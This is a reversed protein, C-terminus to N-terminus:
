AKPTSAEKTSNPAAVSASKAEPLPTSVGAEAAARATGNLASDTDNAAKGEVAATENLSKACAVGEAGTRATGNLSTPVEGKVSASDSSSAAASVNATSATSGADAKSTDSDASETVSSFTVLVLFAIVGHKLFAM